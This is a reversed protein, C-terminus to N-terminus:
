KDCKRCWGGVTLTSGCHTCNDGGHRQVVPVSRVRAETAEPDETLNVKVTADPGPAFTGGGGRYQIVQRPQDVLLEVGALAKFMDESNFVVSEVGGATVLVRVRTIKPGTTVQM